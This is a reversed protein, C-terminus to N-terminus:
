ISVSNGGASGHYIMREPRPLTITDGIGPTNSLPCM